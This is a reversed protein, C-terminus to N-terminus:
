SAQLKLMPKFDDHLWARNTFFWRSRNLLSFPFKIQFIVLNQATNAPNFCRLFKRGGQKSTVILLTVRYASLRSEIRQSVCWIMLHLAYIELKFVYNAWLLKSKESLWQKWKFPSLLPRIQNIYQNLDQSAIVADILNPRKKIREYSLLPKWVLACWLEILNQLTPATKTEFECSVSQM